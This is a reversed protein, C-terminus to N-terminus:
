AVQGCCAGGVWVWGVGVDKGMRGFWCWGRSYRSSNLQLMCYYTESGLSICVGMRGMRRGRGELGGWVWACGVAAPGLDAGFEVVKM